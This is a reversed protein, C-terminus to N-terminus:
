KILSSNYYRVDGTVEEGVFSPLKVETDAAPLELEAIILGANHGRFVDVEWVRGAFPVIYRVKSVCGGKCCRMMERADAVPVPYEWEDRVAGQNRSKVTLFASEGKIRVRVTADPDLSLYGQEIAVNSKAMQKFSMDTVLFKREIEKAMKTNKQLRCTYYICRLM